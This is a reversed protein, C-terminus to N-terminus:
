NVREGVLKRRVGKISDKVLKRFWPSILYLSTAYVILALSAHVGIPVLGEPLDVKLPLPYFRSTVVYTVYTLVTPPAFELLERWPLKFQILKSLFRYLIPLSILSTVSLCALVAVAEHAPNGSVLTLAALGAALGSSVTIFIVSPGKVLYTYVLNAGEVGGVDSVESGLVAQLALQRLGRFFAYLVATIVAGTAPLYAPNFVSVVQPALAILSVVPFVSFTLYLRLAEVVYESKAGRLLKAYMALAASHAARLIPIQTSLAVNLYALTFESPTVLSVIFRIGNELSLTTVNISPALGAKFWTFVERLLTKPKPIRGLYKLGFSLAAALALSMALLVGTLGLGLEVLTIYTLILRVTEFIMHTYGVGQPKTSSLIATLWTLLVYLALVPIAQFFYTVDWGRLGSNVYAFALFAATAPIIYITSAILGSSASSLDGRAVSRRVWFLWLGPVVSAALSLSIIVGWISFETLSLKRAILVTTALAAVLRYVSAVYNVVTSYRLRIEEM